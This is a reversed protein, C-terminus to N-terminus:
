IKLWAKEEIKLFSGYGNKTPENLFMFKFMKNSIRMDSFLYM